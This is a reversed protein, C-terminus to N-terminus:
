AADTRHQLLQESDSARSSRRSQLSANIEAGLLIVGASWYLWIMLAIPTALIGYLKDLKLQGFYQFYFSLSWALALLGSAAFIAGPITLRHAVPSNPALVYLLEIAVFTFLAALFWHLFPWVRMWLSQVPVASSLFAEIVPGALTLLIGLLLVVGVACTLGFALLRNTWLPRPAHVDYVIDLGAIIGKVGKSTLWLTAIIGISLLGTRHPAITAPLQEILSLGQPPIFHAMFSAVSEMGDELPLYSVVATLLMLAPALSMVFYFGLGAAILALHKREIDRYIHKIVAKSENLYNM